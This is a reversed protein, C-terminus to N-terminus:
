STDLIEWTRILDDSWYAGGKIPLPYTREPSKFKLLITRGVKGMWKRASYESGWFRVAPLICGTKIYKELKKPTTCHFVYGDSTQEKRM